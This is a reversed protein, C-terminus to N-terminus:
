ADPAEELPTNLLCALAEIRTAVDRARAPNRPRNRECDRYGMEYVRPVLRRLADLVDRDRGDPM